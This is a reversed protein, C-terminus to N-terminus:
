VCLLIVMAVWVVLCCAIWARMLKESADIDRYEGYLTTFKETNMGSTRADLYYKVRGAANNYFDIRQDSPM